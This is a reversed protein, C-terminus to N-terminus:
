TKREFVKDHHFILTINLYCPNLNYLGKILFELNFPSNEEEKRIKGEGFLESQVKWGEWDIRRSEL